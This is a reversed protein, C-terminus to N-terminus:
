LWPKWGVFSCFLILPDTAQRLLCDAQQEHSLTGDPRVPEKVSRDGWVIKQLPKWSPKKSHLASLERVMVEAPHQGHLKM